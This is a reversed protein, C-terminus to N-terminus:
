VTSLGVGDGVGGRKADEVTAPLYGKSGKKSSGVLIEAYIASQPLIIIPLFHQDIRMNINTSQDICVPRYICIPRYMNYIYIIYM